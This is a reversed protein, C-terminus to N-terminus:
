SLPPKLSYKHKRREIPAVSSKKATTVCITNKHCLLNLVCCGVVGHFVMFYRPITVVVSSAEVETVMQKVALM